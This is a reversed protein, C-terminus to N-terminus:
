YKVEIIYPVGNLVDLRGTYQTGYVPSLVTDVTTECFVSVYLTGAKPRIVTLVKDIGNKVNKYKANKRFVPGESGAFLHLNFDEYGKVPTLVISLTDTGEPVSVTFHHYQRDGIRTYDPNNEETTCVM